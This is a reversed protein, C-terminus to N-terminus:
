SDQTRQIGTRIKKIPKDIEAFSALQSIPPISNSKYTLKPIIATKVM